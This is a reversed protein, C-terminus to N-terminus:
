HAILVAAGGLVADLFTGTVITVAVVFALGLARKAPAYKDRYRRVDTM